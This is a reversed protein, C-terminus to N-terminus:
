SYDEKEVSQISLTPIGVPAAQRACVPVTRSGRSSSTSRAAIRRSAGRMRTTSARTRQDLRIASRSSSRSGSTRARARAPRAGARARRPREPVLRRGRELRRPAHEPLGPRRRLPARIGDPVVIAVVLGATAVNDHAYVLEALAAKREEVVIFRWQQRNKASGSLRGADLIRRVTDEAVPRGDYDRRDRRSAIALYTDMAALNGAPPPSLASPPSSRPPRVNGRRSCSRTTARPEWTSRSWTRRSRRRPPPSRPAAPPTPASIRIATRPSSRASSPPRPPAARSRSPSRPPAPSRTALDRGRPRGARADEAPPARDAGGRLGAGDAPALPAVRAVLADAQLAADAAGDWHNVSLRASM